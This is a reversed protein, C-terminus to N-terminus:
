PTCANPQAAAANANCLRSRGGLFLEVRMATAATGFSSSALRVNFDLPDTASTPAVCPTAILGTDARNVLRGVSNFCIIANGSVTAGDNATYSGGTIYASALFAADSAEESNLPLVQAYWNRGNIAPVANLAPRANTRVLAVQRNRAVAEAQALRMANALEESVTRVRADRTWAGYGPIALMLMIGVLTLTVLLEILTLGRVRSRLM